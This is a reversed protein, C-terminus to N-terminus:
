ADLEARPDAHGEDDSREVEYRPIQWNAASVPKPKASARADALKRLKGLLELGRTAAALRVSENATTGPQTLEAVTSAFEEALEAFRLGAIALAADLADRVDTASDSGRLWALVQEDTAAEGYLRELEVSAKHSLKAVRQQYTLRRGM